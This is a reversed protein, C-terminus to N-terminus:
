SPAYELLPNKFCFMPPNLLLGGVLANNSQSQSPLLLGEGTENANIVKLLVSDEFRSHFIFSMFFETFHSQSIDTDLSFANKFM